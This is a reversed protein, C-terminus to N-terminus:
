VCASSDASGAAPGPPAARRSFIMRVRRIASGSWDRRGATREGATARELDANAALFPRREQRAGRARIDGAPHAIREVSLSRTTKRCPPCRAAGANCLQTRLASAHALGLSRQACHDPCGAPPSPALSDRAHDRDRYRQRCPPLHCRLWAPARSIAAEARSQRRPPRPLRRACQRPGLGIFPEAVVDRLAVSRRRALRHGRAVALVLRDPRFPLTELAAHDVADSVIGIDAFGRRSAGPRDRLELAGRSRRRYQSQGDSVRWRTRCSNRSRRRTPASASM